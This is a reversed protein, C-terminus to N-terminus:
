EDGGDAKGNILKTWKTRAYDWSRFAALRRCGDEPVSAIKGAAASDVLTALEGYDAFDTLKIELEELQCYQLWEGKIVAAGAYMYENMSASFADTTIAHIYIDAALRLYACETMDMFETLVLTKIHLEEAHAKVQEIYEATGGYTMQLVVTARSICECKALADLMKLHNQAPSATYGACIVIDKPDIGFHAKFETKGCLGRIRDIEELSNQGFTAPAAKRSIKEGVRERLIDAFSDSQVAIADCKLLYPKMRSMELKSTRLLDSGIFSCVWRAGFRKSMLGGLALDRQSLYQNVVLDFAGYEALAKANRWIRVWMRLRPIHRVIPLKNEDKYVTVGRSEYFESLKGEDGWIPFVVTEYGFPILLEDVFMKTWLSDSDAILLAKKSM